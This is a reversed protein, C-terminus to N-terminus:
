GAKIAKIKDILQPLADEWKAVLGYDAVQFIPAEADKNIAVIVKSSKMGALHQIAGSIGVAVYLDPAVVKGTQGVQLDNPVLGADCAARTAGIAAGLADALDEIHKFNEKSKLGRGGSVVVSAEALDPRDSAALNLSVIEAGLAQPSGVAAQEVPAEAGTPEAQPWETQRATAVLTDTSVQVTAIANGAVMPRKFKKAELVESVDSVMATDWLAAVRPLLDKGMATATACVYTANVSQAASAVVPAFTEAAYQKLEAQDALLVKSLGFKSLEAAASAAGAGLVLGVLDGGGSVESLKKGFSVANLTASRLKGDQQEAVILVNGM